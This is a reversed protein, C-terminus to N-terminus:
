GARRVRNEHVRVGEQTLRRAQEDELGPVLRGEKTVVRWWPLGDSNSLLRGVARAAGERGAQAAIEGYTTVEGAQLGSIIKRVQQAFRDDPPGTM